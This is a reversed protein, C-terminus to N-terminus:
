NNRTIDPELEALIIFAMIVVEPDCNAEISRAMNGHNRSVLINFYDTATSDYYHRKLSTFTASDTACLSALVKKMETRLGESALQHGATVIMKDVLDRQCPDLM